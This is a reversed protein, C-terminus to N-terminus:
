KTLMMIVPALVSVLTVLGAIVKMAFMFSETKKDIEALQKELNNIKICAEEKNAEVMDESDNLRYLITNHSSQLENMRDGNFKVEKFLEELNEKIIRNDFKLELIDKDSDDIVM